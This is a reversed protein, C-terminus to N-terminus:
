RLNRKVLKLTKLWLENTKMYDKRMGVIKGYEKGIKTILRRVVQEPDKRIKKDWYLKGRKVKLKGSKMMAIVIGTAWEARRLKVKQVKDIFVLRKNSGSIKDKSNAEFFEALHLNVLDSVDGMIKLTEKPYKKQYGALQEEYISLNQAPATASLNMMYKATPDGVVMLSVMQRIDYKGSGNERFKLAFRKVQEQFVEKLYDFAGRFNSLTAAKLSSSNNLGESISKLDKKSYNEYLFVRFNHNKKLLKPIGTELIARHRHGGDMISYVTIEYFKGSLRMSGVWHMPHSREAFDVDIRSLTKEEIEKVVKNRSPTRPNDTLPLDVMPYNKVINAEIFHLSKKGKKSWIIHKAESKPIRFVHKQVTEGLSKMQQALTEKKAKKAKTKIKGM